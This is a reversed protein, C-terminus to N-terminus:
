LEQQQQQQQNHGLQKSAELRIRFSKIQKPPLTAYAQGRGPLQRVSQTNFMDLSKCAPWFYTHTALQTPLARSSSVTFRISIGLTPLKAAIPRM